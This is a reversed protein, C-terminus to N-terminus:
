QVFLKVKDSVICGKFYFADNKRCDEEIEDDSVFNKIDGQQYLVEISYIGPKVLHYQRFNFRQSFELTKGAKVVVKSDRFWDKTSLMQHRLVTGTQGHISDPLSGDTLVHNGTKDRVLLYLQAAGVFCLSDYGFENVEINRNFNYLLMNLNSTNVLRYKLDACNGLCENTDDRLHSIQISDGLLQLTLTGKTEEPAPTCCM